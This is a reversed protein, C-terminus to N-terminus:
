YTHEYNIIEKFDSTVLVDVIQKIDIYKKGVIFGMVQFIPKGIRQETKRWLEYDSRSVIREYGDVYHKIRIAYTMVLGRKQCM